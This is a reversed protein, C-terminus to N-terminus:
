ATLTGNLFRELFYTQGKGTVRTTRTVLVTGDAKSVTSESVRFLGRELARQTPMNWMTGKQRCLYERERLIRYLRNQGVNIGNQRLLKALDGVLIDTDSSAVADAFRAKPRMSDNEAQIRANEDRLVLNRAQEEKIKNALSILFDPNNLIHEQVQPTLYAGHKRVSPIIEDAVFAQFKEATENKAKMALRYFINEPIFGDKAEETLQMQENTPMSYGLEQIYKWVRSWRVTENGSTAVTTFGLVRAVNELKLFVTGNKEYCDVGGFNFVQLGQEM